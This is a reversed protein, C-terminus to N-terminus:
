FKRDDPNTAGVYDQPVDKGTQYVSGQYSTTRKSICERAMAEAKEVDAPTM